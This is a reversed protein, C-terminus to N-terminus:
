NKVKKAVYARQAEEPCLAVPGGDGKFEKDATKQMHFTNDDIRSMRIVDTSPPPSNSDSNKKKEPPAQKGSAPTCTMDMSVEARGTNMLGVVKCEIKGSAITGETLAVAVDGSKACRDNFDPGVGAYIGDKPRWQNPSVLQEPIKYETTARDRAQQEAHVLQAEDPCYNSQWASGNFRGNLTKRVSLAQDNIRKLIMIEKFHKDEPRNLGEALNLDYCDMNLRITRDPSDTLSKIKCSWENGGISRKALDIYFYEAEM